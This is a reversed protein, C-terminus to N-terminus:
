DLLRLREVFVVVFYGVNNNCVYTFFYSLFVKGLSFFVIYFVDFYKPWVCM